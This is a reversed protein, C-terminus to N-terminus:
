GLLGVRAKVVFFRYLLVRYFPFKHLKCFTVQNPKRCPEPLLPFAQTTTSFSSRTGLALARCVLDISLAMQMAPSRSSWPGLITKCTECSSSGLMSLEGFLLSRRSPTKCLLPTLHATFQLLKLSPEHVMAM